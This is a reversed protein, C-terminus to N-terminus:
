LTGEYGVADLALHVLTKEKSAAPVPLKPAAGHVRYQTTHLATGNRDNECRQETVGLLATTVLEDLVGVVNPRISM